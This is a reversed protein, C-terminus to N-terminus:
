PHRRPRPIILDSTSSELSPSLFAKRIQPKVQIRELLIRDYPLRRGDEDFAPLRKGTAEDYMGVEIIYEGPPTQPDLPIEYHDVVVEGEIWLTTPCTGGKPPNDKQGWIKDEVDLVHTFVKYSTDMRKIAQWYLVLHLCEGPKIETQALDYGLFRVKGGLEAHMPHQIHPIAFLREREIVKIRGLRLSDGFIMESLRAVLGEEKPKRREIELAYNGGRADVPVRVDHQGMWIEGEEWLVTPFGKGAPQIEKEVLPNGNGNVLRLVFSYDSRPKEIAKWYIHVWIRDGPRPNKNFLNYGFLEIEGFKRGRRNQIPL